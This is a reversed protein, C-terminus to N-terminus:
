FSGRLERQYIISYHYSILHYYRVVQCSFWLLVYLTKWQPWFKRPHFTKFSQYDMPRPPPCLKKQINRFQSKGQEITMVYWFLFLLSQCSSGSSGMYPRPPM